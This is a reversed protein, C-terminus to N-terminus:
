PKKTNPMATLTPPKVQTWWGPTSTITPTSPILTVHLGGNVVPKWSVFRAFVLTMLCFFIVLFSVLLDRRFYKRITNM